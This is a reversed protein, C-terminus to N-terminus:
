TSPGPRLSKCPAPIPTRSATRRSASARRARSHTARPAARLDAPAILRLRRGDGLDIPAGNAAIAQDEDTAAGAIWTMPTSLDLSALATAVGGASHRRQLRGHEDTGHEVPGRNSVMILRGRGNVESASATRDFGPRSDPPSKM